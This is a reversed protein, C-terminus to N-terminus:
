QSNLVAQWELGLCNAHYAKNQGNNSLDTVSWTVKIMFIVFHLEVDIQM